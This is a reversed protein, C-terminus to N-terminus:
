FGMVNINGHDTEDYQLLNCSAYLKIDIVGRNFPVVPLQATCSEGYNRFFSFM